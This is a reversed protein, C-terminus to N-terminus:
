CAHLHALMELQVTETVHKVHSSFKGGRCLCAPLVQDPLSHTLSLFGGCGERGTAQVVLPLLTLAALRPQVHRVAM